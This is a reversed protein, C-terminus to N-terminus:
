HASSNEEWESYSSCTIRLNSRTDKHSNSGYNQVGDRNIQSRLSTQGLNHFNLISNKFHQEGQWQLQKLETEGM